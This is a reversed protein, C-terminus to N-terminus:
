HQKGVLCYCSLAFPVFYPLCVEKGAFSFLLYPDVLEKMAGGILSKKITEGIASDVAFCFLLLLNMVILKM